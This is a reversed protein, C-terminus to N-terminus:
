TEVEWRRCLQDREKSAFWPSMADERGARAGAAALRGQDSRARPPCASRTGRRMVVKRCRQRAQTRWSVVLAPGQYRVGEPRPWTSAAPADCRPAVVHMFARAWGVVLGGCSQFSSEIAVGRVGGSGSHVGPVVNGIALLFSSGSSCASLERLGLSAFLDSPLRQERLHRAVV